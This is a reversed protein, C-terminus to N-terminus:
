DSVGTLKYEDVYSELESEQKINDSIYMERSYVTALIYDDFFTLEIMYTDCGDKTSMDEMNDCIVKNDKISLNKHIDYGYITIDMENNNRVEDITLSLEWNNEPSFYQWKGNFSSYDYKNSKCSTLIIVAVVTSLLLIKTFKKM